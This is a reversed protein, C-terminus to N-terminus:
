NGSASFAAWYFPHTSQRARRRADLVHRCTAEVAAAARTEGRARVDYLARMWDVTVQDDLAWQSAIVSRAGALQFARRMGLAGEDTWSEALGSHCASLVVWDTGSLELTVVEDATLLGDDDERQSERAHNAGALALWVRRGLWPSSAAAPRATAAQRAPGKARADLPAVGGIGRLGTVSERCRDGTVVGHTALHLIACGPALRKFAAESAEAGRRVEAVHGPAVRWEAAVVGV